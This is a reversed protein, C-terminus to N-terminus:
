GAHAHGKARRPVMRTQSILNMNSTHADTQKPPLALLCAYMEQVRHQTCTDWDPRWCTCSSANHGWLSHLTTMACTRGPGNQARGMKDRRHQQHM